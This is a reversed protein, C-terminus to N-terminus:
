TNGLFSNRYQSFLRWWLARACLRWWGWRDLRLAELDVQPHRARLRTGERNGARKNAIRRKPANLTDIDEADVTRMDLDREEEGGRLKKADTTSAISM